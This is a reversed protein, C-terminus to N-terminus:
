VHSGLSGKGIGPGQRMHQWHRLLIGCEGFCVGFRYEGSLCGTADVARAKTMCIPEAPDRGKVILPAWEKAKAQCGSKSPSAFSSLVM